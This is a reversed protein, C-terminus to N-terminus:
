FILPIMGTWFSIKLVSSQAGQGTSDRQTCEGRSAATKDNRRVRVLTTRQGSDLLVFVPHRILGPMVLHTPYGAALQPTDYTMGHKVSGAGYKIRPFGSDKRRNSVTTMVGSIIFSAISQLRILRIDKQSERITAAASLARESFM